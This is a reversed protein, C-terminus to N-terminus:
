NMGLVDKVETELADPGMAKDGTKASVLIGIIQAIQDPTATEPIELNIGQERLLSQAEQMQESQAFAAGAIVVAAAIATVTKLM